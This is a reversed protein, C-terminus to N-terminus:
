IPKAMATVNMNRRIIQQHLPITGYGYPHQQRTQPNGKQHKQRTQPNRKPTESTNSPEKKTNRVHNLIGQQHQQRTQPNRKTNSVHKLTGKPTASTNSPEKQHQQRTKPKRKPSVFLEM